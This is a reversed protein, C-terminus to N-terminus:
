IRFLGQSRQTFLMPRKGLTCFVHNTKNRHNNSFWITLGLITCQYMNNIICCCSHCYSNVSVNGQGVPDIYGVYHGGHNDGSHVLVAHLRYKAETEEPKQLYKELNIEDPFEFRTVYIYIFLM